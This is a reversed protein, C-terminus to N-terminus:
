DMEVHYVGRYRKPATGVGSRARPAYAHPDDLVVPRSPANVAALEMRGEVQLVSGSMDDRSVRFPPTPIGVIRLSSTTGGGSVLV